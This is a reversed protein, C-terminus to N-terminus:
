GASIAESADLADLVDMADDVSRVVAVLGGAAKIQKHRHRQIPTPDDGEPMKTEFWIPHGKYCGVIDPLGNMM